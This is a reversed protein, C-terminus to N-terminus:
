GEGFSKLRMRYLDIETGVVDSPLPAVEGLLRTYLFIQAIRETLAAIELAEQLDAGAAVAGHNRILAAKRDGLVDCVANALEQTGPFVYDSVGVPGGIRIVMEDILPPLELGAVAMVSAFVSHTHVVAGVDPRRRYIEVHLLSESSPMADGEIPEVEFDAIVVDDETMRSYPVASPTVAFLDRGDLPALRMSVNGSTGTVLGMDAMEKSAELVMRQATHWGETM